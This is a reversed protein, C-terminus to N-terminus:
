PAVTEDDLGDLLLDYSRGLIQRGALSPGLTSSDWVTNFHTAGHQIATDFRVRFKRSLAYEVHGVRALTRTASRPPLQRLMPLVIRLLAKRVNHLRRRM